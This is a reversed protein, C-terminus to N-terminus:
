YSRGNSGKFGDAGDQGSAGVRGNKGWEVKYACEFHQVGIAWKWIVSNVPEWYQKYFQLSAAGKQGNGGQQGKGHKGGNGGNGPLTKTFVNKIKQKTILSIDRVSGGNGGRGGDGGNGGRGGNLGNMVYKGKRTTTECQDNTQEWMMYETTPAYKLIIRLDGKNECFGPVDKM